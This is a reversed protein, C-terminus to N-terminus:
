LAERRRKRPQVVDVRLLQHSKDNLGKVIHTLINGQLKRGISGKHMFKILIKQRIKEALDVMNMRKIKSIWNNFSGVLNNTVYDVKTTTSFKSRMWLNPHRQSLYIDVALNVAVMKSMNEEFKDQCWAIISAM